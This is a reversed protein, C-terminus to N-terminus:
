NKCFDKDQRCMWLRLDSAVKNLFEHDTRAEAKVQAMDAQLTEVQYATVKYGGFAVVLSVVLPVLLSIAWQVASWSPGQQSNTAPSM